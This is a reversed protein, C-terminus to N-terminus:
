DVWHVGSCYKYVDRDKSGTLVKFETQGSSFENAEALGGTKWMAMPYM